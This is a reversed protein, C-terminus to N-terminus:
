SNSSNTSVTLEHGVVVGIGGYNLYDPYNDGFFPNQLIGAPFVIENITPNYYANVEQPNMGWRALDPSKGIDTWSKAVSFERANLYNGFYDDADISLDGYYGSLSVPSMINPSTDPYGIKRTLANVKEVAKERTTDDVWTLEPLRALFVEKISNVFDDARKKTDAGFKEIVYYRGALFGISGNIEDLCTEWRPKVAKPNAGSLKANFRRIPARIDDGLAGAYSSVVQWTFYAQLTRPGETEFLESVNGVYHPSTVVIKGPHPANTPTLRNVYLGWDIAPAIKALESLSLLNYLREPDQFYENFDSKDALKKEFDVILRATTNASFKSWGFNDSKSFVADLTEAIVDFLLQVSDDNEYYEKSPLSLGGQYLQIANVTPDKPDADVMFEFPSSIDRKALYALTETLRRSESGDGGKTPFLERIQKLLPYIPEAGKSDIKAEDMCSDYLNKAKEFNQKDIVKEPDPLNSSSASSSHTRKYFDDFTGSLINRLADKNQDRLIM